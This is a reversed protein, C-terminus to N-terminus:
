FKSMQYFSSQLSYLLSLSFRVKLDILNSIANLSGLYSIYYWYFWMLEYVVPAVVVPGHNKSMEIFVVDFIVVKM